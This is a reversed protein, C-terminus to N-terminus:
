RIYFALFMLVGAFLTLVISIIVFMPSPKEREVWIVEVPKRKVIKTRKRLASTSQLRSRKEILPNGSRETEINLDNLKTRRRDIPEANSMGVDDPVDRADEAQTAVEALNLGSVSEGCSYCFASGERVAAGCAECVLIEVAVKPM